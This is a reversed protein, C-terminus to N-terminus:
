LTQLTSKCIKTDISIYNSNQIMCHNRDYIDINTNRWKEEHYEKKGYDVLSLAIFSKGAGVKDAIIGVKTNLIPTDPYKEKVFHVYESPTKTAILIKEDETFDNKIPIGHPNEILIARWLATKQHPKLPITIKSPQSYQPSNEGLISTQINMM